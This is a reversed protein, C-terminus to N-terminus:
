ILWVSIRRKSCRHAHMAVTGQMDDSRPGCASFEGDIVSLPDDFKLVSIDRLRACGLKAFSSSSSARSPSASNIRPVPVILGLGFQSFPAIHVCALNLCLLSQHQSLSMCGCAQDKKRFIFGGFTKWQMSPGGLRERVGTLRPATVHVEHEMGSGIRM